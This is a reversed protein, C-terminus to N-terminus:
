LCPLNSLSYYMMCKSITAAFASVIEEYSHIVKLNEQFCFTWKRPVSSLFFKLFAPYQHDYFPFHQNNDSLKWCSASTM